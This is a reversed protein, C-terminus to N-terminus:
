LPQDLFSKITLYNSIIWYNYFFQLNLRSLHSTTIAGDAHMGMVEILIWNKKEM